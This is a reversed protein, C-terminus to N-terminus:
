FSRVSTKQRLMRLATQIKRDRGTPVTVSECMSHVDRAENDTKMFVNWKAQQDTNRLATNKLM